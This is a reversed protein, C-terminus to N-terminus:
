IAWRATATSCRWRRGSKSSGFTRSCISAAPASGTEFLTLRIAHSDSGQLDAEAMLTAITLSDEAPLGLRRARDRHLGAARHVRHAPGHLKLSNMPMIRGPARPAIWAAHAQAGSRCERTHRSPYEGGRARSADALVPAAAPLLRRPRDPNFFGLDRLTRAAHEHLGAVEDQAALPYTVAAYGGVLGAAMRLEYAVVQVAAALNLSGYDPNAPIFALTQCRGVDDNTLGFTETGFVMAIDGSAALQIAEAAAERVSQVKGVLERHRISLGIALVCGALAEDLTPRVRAAELVDVAGSARATAEPHPFLRPEVLVLQSLGM